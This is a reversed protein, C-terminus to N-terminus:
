NHGSGLLRNVKDEKNAHNKLEEKLDNAIDQAYDKIWESTFSTSNIADLCEKTRLVEILMLAAEQCEIANDKLSAIIMPIFMAEYNKIRLFAIIRLIGCLVSKDHLSKGYIENLWNCTVSENANYNQQIFAIADNTMGDEFDARHLLTIFYAEKSRLFEFFKRNLINISNQDTSEPMQTAPILSALNLSPGNIYNWLNHEISTRIQANIYDYLSTGIDM